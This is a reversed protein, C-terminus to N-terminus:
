GGWSPYWEGHDEDQCRVSVQVKFQRQGSDLVVRDVGSYDGKANKDRYSTRIYANLAKCDRCGERGPPCEEQDYIERAQKLLEPIRQTDGLEIEVVEVTLPLAFGQEEARKLLEEQTPKAPPGFYFLAAKEPKRYGLKELLFAYGLLQNRYQELYVDQGASYRATKYDAVLWRLRGEGYLVVDPIGTLLIDNEEDHWKLSGVDEYGVADSFAKGMWQPAQDQEDM